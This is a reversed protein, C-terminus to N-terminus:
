CGSAQPKADAPVPEVLELYRRAAAVFRSPDCVAPDDVHWAALLARRLARHVRYFALLREPPRDGTVDRYVDLFWRGPREEGLRSCELSLFALEDAPDLM